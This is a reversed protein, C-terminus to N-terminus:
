SHSAFWRVPVAVRLRDYGEQTPIPTREAPDVARLWYGTVTTPTAPTSSYDLMQLRLERMAYHLDDGAQTMARTATATSPWFLDAILLVVEETATTAGIHGSVRGPLPEVSWRVFPSADPQLREDRPHVMVPSGAVTLTDVWVGIRSEINAWRESAHITM